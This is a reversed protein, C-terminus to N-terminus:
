GHWTDDAVIRNRGTAKARYLAQDARDFVRESWDRTPEGAALGISVTLPFPLAADAIHQRIRQPDINQGLLDLNAYTVELQIEQATVSIAPYDHDFVLQLYCVVVM